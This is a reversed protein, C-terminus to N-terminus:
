QKPKYVTNSGSGLKMDPGKSESHEQGIEGFKPEFVVTAGNNEGLVNGGGMAPDVVTNSGGANDFVTNSGSAREPDITASSSSDSGAVKDLVTNSGSSKAPDFVTSSGSFFTGVAQICDQVKDLVSNSGSSKAPDFVTTSGSASHHIPRSAGSSAAESGNVNEEAVIIMKEPLDPMPSGPKPQILKGEEINSASGGGLGSHQGELSDVAKASEVPLFGPCGTVVTFPKKDLPIARRPLPSGAGATPIGGTWPAPGKPLEPIPSPGKEPEKPLEKGDAWPGIGDPRKPIPSPGKEPEPPLMDIIAIKGSSGPNDIISIKSGGKTLPIPLTGDAKFPFPLTGDANALPLPWTGDGLRRVQAVFVEADTDAKSALM